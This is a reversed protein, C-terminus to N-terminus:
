GPISTHRISQHCVSACHICLRQTAENAKASQGRQGSSPMDSAQRRHCAHGTSSPQPAQPSTSPAEFPEFTWLARSIYVTAKSWTPFPVDYVRLTHLTFLVSHLDDQQTRPRAATPGTTRDGLRGHSKCDAHGMQLQPQLLNPPQQVGEVGVEESRLRPARNPGAAELGGLLIHAIWRAPLVALMRGSFNRWLFPTSCPHQLTKAGTKAAPRLRRGASGACAPTADVSPSGNLCPQKASPLTCRWCRASCLSGDFM